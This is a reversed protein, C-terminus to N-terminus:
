QYGKELPLDGSKRSDKWKLNPHKAKVGCVRIRGDDYLEILCIQVLKHIASAISRHDVHAHRALSVGSFGSKSKSSLPYYYSPLIERREKVAICWLTSYLRWASDSIHDLRPDSLVFGVEFVAHDGDYEKRKGAM